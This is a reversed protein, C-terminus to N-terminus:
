KGKMAAEIAKEMARYEIFGRAKDERDFEHAEVSQGLMAGRDNVATWRQAKVFEMIRWTAAEANCAAIAAYVRSAEIM